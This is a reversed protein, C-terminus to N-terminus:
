RWPNVPAAGAPPPVQQGGLVSGQQASGDAFGFPDYIVDAPNVGAREAIGRYRDVVARSQQRHVDAIANAQNLFDARIEPSLRQGSRARNYMARIRDSVGGANQATAFEGERVTSGPDVIKMFGYILSVDGAATDSKGANQVKQWAASVQQAATIAPDSNFQSRLQGINSASLAAAQPDRAAAQTRAGVVGLDHQYKLGELEKARDFAEADRQAQWGRMTEDRSAAFQRAADQERRRDARERAYQLAQAERSQAIPTQTRDLYAGDVGIGSYMASAPPQLVTPAGGATGTVDPIQFQPAAQPMAGFRVGQTALQARAVLDALKQADEQRKAQQDAQKLAVATQLGQTLGSFLGGLAYPSPM